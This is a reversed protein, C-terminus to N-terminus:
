DLKAVKSAEITSGIGPDVISAKVKHLGNRSFELFSHKLEPVLELAKQFGESEFFEHWPSGHNEQEVLRLPAEELRSLASGFLRAEFLKDLRVAEKRYGEYAKAVSAKFAYDEALRFRQGIQKTALWAFWVPAGISLISLVIHMWIVGWKPEPDAIAKSLVEVRIMGLYAGAALAILLGIVWVWMTIGLKSARQDFAAALGKSTTIRYAEECQDVLKGAEDRRASIEGSLKEALEANRSAKGAALASDDALSVVRTRAEALSQMDVPLSEAADHASQIESLQRSLQEKNPVLQDIDAQISRLRRAMHPPMTKNDPILKWGIIPTLSFRITDLTSIYASVAPGNNGGWFQPVTQTQMHQLRRPYDQVLAILDKDIDDINAERIDNALRLSINAMDHRTVTPCNWGWAECFTQDGNWGSKVAAALADLARCLADLDKHM